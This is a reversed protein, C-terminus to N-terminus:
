HSLICQRARTHSEFVEEKLVADQPRGQPLAPGNALRLGAQSVVQVSVLTGGTYVLTATYTSM